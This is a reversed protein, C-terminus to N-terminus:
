FRTTSPLTSQNGKLVSIISGRKGTFEAAKLAGSQSDTWSYPEGWVISCSSNTQLVELKSKAVHIKCCTAPVTCQNKKANAEPTLKYSLYHMEWVQTTSITWQRTMGTCSVCAKTECIALYLGLDLAFEPGPGKVLAGSTGRPDLDPIGWLEQCNSVKLRGNGVTWTCAIHWPMRNIWQLCPTACCARNLFVMGRFGFGGKLLEFRSTTEWM